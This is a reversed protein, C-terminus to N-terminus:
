VGSGTAKTRGIKAPLVASAEWQSSSNAFQVGVGSFFNVLEACSVRLSASAALGDLKKMPKNYGSTTLSPLCFYAVLIILCVKNLMSRFFYKFAEAVLSTCRSFKLFRGRGKNLGPDIYVNM